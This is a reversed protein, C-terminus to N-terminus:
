KKITTGIGEQVKRINGTNTIIVKKGGSSLFKLAAKIKPKMSGEEFENKKMLDKAKSPHIEEIKEQNESNYNKYVYPVDTIIYLKEANIQSALLASVKDKDIVAEVGRYEEKRKKEVPIGGGGCAVVHFENEMLTKIEQIEVISKPEPSPVVRRWGESGKTFKQGKKDPKKEYYPGIPKKPEKFAPDNPDIEVQTVISATKVGTSKQLYYGIQGQTMAVCTDLPLSPVENTKQQQILLNGVQPGNGHTIIAQKDEIIPKLNKITKKIRKVQSQNNGKEGPKVLTNGGLAIIARTM